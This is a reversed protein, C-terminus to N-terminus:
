YGPINWRHGCPCTRDGNGHRTNIGGGCKPCDFMGVGKHAGLRAVVEGVGAEVYAEVQEARRADLFEKARMEIYKLAPELALYPFTKRREFTEEPQDQITPPNLFSREEMVWHDVFIDDSSRCEGFTICLAKKSVFDFRIVLVVGRERGDYWPYTKIDAEYEQATKDWASINSCERRALIALLALAQASLGLTADALHISM